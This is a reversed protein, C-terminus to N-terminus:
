HRWRTEVDRVIREIAHYVVLFV